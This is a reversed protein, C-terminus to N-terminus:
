KALIITAIVGVLGIVTALLADTTVTQQRVRVLLRGGFLGAALGLLGVIIRRPDTLGEAVVWSVVAGFAAATLQLVLNAGRAMPERSRIYSHGAPTITFRYDIPSSPFERVILNANLLEALLSPLAFIPNSITDSTIRNPSDIGRVHFKVPASGSRIPDNDVLGHLLGIADASLRLAPTM